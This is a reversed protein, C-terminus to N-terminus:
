TYDSWRIRSQTAFIMIRYESLLTCNPCISHFVFYKDLTHSIRFCKYLNDFQKTLESIAYFLVIESTTTLRALKVYSWLRADTCMCTNNMGTPWITGLMSDRIGKEFEWCSHIYQSGSRFYLTCVIPTIHYCLSRLEIFKSLLYQRLFWVNKKWQM